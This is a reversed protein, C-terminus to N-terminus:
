GWHLAEGLPTRVVVTLLVDVTRGAEVERMWELHAIPRGALTVNPALTVISEGLADFRLSTSIRPEVVEVEFSARLSVPLAERVVVVAPKTRMNTLRVVISRTYHRRDPAFFGGSEGDKTTVTRQVHISDDTGLQLQSLQQPATFPQSVLGAYSSDVFAPGTGPLLPLPSTNVFELVRFAAQAHVPVSLSYMRVDQLEFDKILVRVSSSSICHHGDIAFTWSAGDSAEHATAREAVGTDQQASLGSDGGAFRMPTAAASHMHRNRLQPQPGVHWQPPHLSPLPAASAIAGTTLKLSVNRWLVGTRQQINAGYAVRLASRGSNTSIYYSYTPEWLAAHTQCRISLTVLGDSPASSDAYSRDSMQLLVGLVSRVRTIDEIAAETSARKRQIVAREEEVEAQRLLIHRSINAAEDLVSIIRSSGSDTLAARKVAETAYLEALRRKSEFASSESGLFRERRALEALQDKLENLRSTNGARQEFSTQLITASGKSVSVGLADRSCSGLSELSVGVKMEGPHTAALSVVSTTVAGSRYVVASVTEADLVPYNEQDAASTEVFAAALACCLGLTLVQFPARM